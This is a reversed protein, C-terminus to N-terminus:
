ANTLLSRARCDRKSKKKEKAKPQNRKLMASFCSAFNAYLLPKKSILDQNFMVGQLPRDKTHNPKPIETQPYFFANSTRYITFALLVLKPEEQSDEKLKKGNTESSIVAARLMIAILLLLSPFSPPLNIIDLAFRLQCNGWTADAIIKMLHATRELHISAIISINFLVNAIKHRDYLHEVKHLLMVQFKNSLKNDLNEENGRVSSNILM